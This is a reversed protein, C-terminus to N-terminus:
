RSYCEGPGLNRVEARVKGFPPPAIGLEQVEASNKAPEIFIGLERVEAKDKESAEKAVVGLEQVEAKDRGIVTLTGSGLEQVEARNKTPGSPFLEYVKGLEQVEARNKTSYRQDDNYGLEQVEASSGAMMRQDIETQESVAANGQVAVTTLEVSVSPVTYRQATEIEGAAATGFILSCSCVATLLLIKKM